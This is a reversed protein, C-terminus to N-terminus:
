HFMCMQRVSIIRSDSSNYYYNQKGDIVQINESTKYM